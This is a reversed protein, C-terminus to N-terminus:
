GGLETNLRVIEKYVTKRVRMKYVRVSSEAVSFKEAIEANSYEDEMSM